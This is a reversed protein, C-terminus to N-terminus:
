YIDNRLSKKDLIDGKRYGTVAFKAISTQDKVGQQRGGLTM